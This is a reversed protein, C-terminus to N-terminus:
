GIDGPTAAGALVDAPMADAITRLSRVPSFVITLVALLGGAGAVWMTERLGIEGGLWGGLMAGIPIAGWALFRVTAHMRGQLRPPTIAQRLTLQDVNFVMSTASLVLLTGVLWPM